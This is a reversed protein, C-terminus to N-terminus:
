AEVLSFCVHEASLEERLSRGWPTKEYLRLLLSRNAAALSRCSQGTPTVESLALLESEPCVCSAELVTEADEMQLRLTLSGESRAAYFGGETDAASATDYFFDREPMTLIAQPSCSLKGAKESPLSCFAFAGQTLRSGDSLRRLETGALRLLPGTFASGWTRDCYGCSSEPRVIYKEGNLLIVGSFQTNLGTINWTPKSAFLSKLAKGRGSLPDFSLENQLRLDWYINGAAASDNEQPYASADISGRLMHETLACNAALLYFPESKSMEAEFWGFCRSFSVGEKGLAGARLRIYSPCQDKAPNALMPRSCGLAPNLFTYEVFFAREEGAAASFAQFVFRRQEWGQAALSGTLVATKKESENLNAM